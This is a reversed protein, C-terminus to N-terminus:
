ESPRRRAIWIPSRGGESTLVVSKGDASYCIAEGQPRSPVSISTLPRRWIDDFSRSGAELALEYAALYNTIVVRRGDPSIDAGTVLSGFLTSVQLAGVRELTTSSATSHPARAVYVRATADSTKAIVYLDGTKPHVLLAESDHKGDPYILKITAPDSTQTARRSPGTKSIAPEPIRLVSISRRRKLNDGIDGVYIYSVDRDPGPGVAIDEWDFARTHPLVFTGLDRGKEDFAYLLPRGGSDNHTWYCGPARRSAAVGSSETVSNNAIRGVEVAPAFATRGTTGVLRGGLSRYAGVGAVVVAAAALTAVLVLPTRAIVRM